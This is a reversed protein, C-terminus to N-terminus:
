KLAKFFASEQDGRRGQEIVGLVYGLNQYLLDPIHNLIPLHYITKM